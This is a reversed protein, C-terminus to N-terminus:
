DLVLVAVCVVAVVAILVSDGATWRVSRAPAVPGGRTLVADGIEESRRVANAVVTAGIEGYSRRGSAPRTRWVAALTRLEDLLLPLARVALALAVVLEDVPIRLPRLPRLLTAVAPTLDASPTTWGVLGALSLMIVTFLLFRAAVVLGGLEVGGVIPDGGALASITVMVAMGLWLLRPPRPAVGLPLRALTFGAVVAGGVVALATWRASIALTLVLAVLSIVKATASRRHMWSEGPVHRLVTLDALDMQRSRRSRRAPETM